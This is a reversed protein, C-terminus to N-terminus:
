KFDRKMWSIDWFFLYLKCNTKTWPTNNPENIQLSFTSSEFLFISRLCFNFTLAAPTSSALHWISPWIAFSSIGHINKKCKQTSSLLHMHNTRWEESAPFMIDCRTVDQSVWSAVKVEPYICLLYKGFICSGM